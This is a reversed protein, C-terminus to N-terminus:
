EGGRVEILSTCPGSFDGDRGVIRAAVGGTEGGLFFTAAFSGGIATVDRPCAVLLVAIGESEGGLIRAVETDVPHWVVSLSSVWRWRPVILTATRCGSDSRRKGLSGRGYGRGNRGGLSSFADNRSNPYPRM